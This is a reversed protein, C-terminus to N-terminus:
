MQSARASLELPTCQQQAYEVMPRFYQEVRERPVRIDGSKSVYHHGMAQSDSLFEIVIGLQWVNYHRMLEWFNWIVYPM